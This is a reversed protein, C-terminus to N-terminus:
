LPCPIPQKFGEYGLAPCDCDADLKGAPEYRKCHREAKDTHSPLPVHCSESVCGSLVLGLAATALYKVM